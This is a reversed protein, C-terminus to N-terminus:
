EPTGAAVWATIKDITCADLKATGEPYPMPKFNEQHNIAGIIRGFAVFAKAADYNHMAGQMTAENVSHCGSIACNTDLIEKIDDTYTLDTTVCTDPEEDKDCSYVFLAFVLFFLGLLKKMM